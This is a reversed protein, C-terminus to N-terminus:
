QTGPWGAHIYTLLLNERCIAQLHISHFKKYTYYSAKRRDRKIEIKLHTGDLCGVVNPFQHGSSNFNQAIQAFSRQRPFSIVKSINEILTEMVEDCCELLTSEAVGYLHAISYFVISFM